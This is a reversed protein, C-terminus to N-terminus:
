PLHENKLSSSDFWKFHLRSSNFCDCKKGQLPKVLSKSNKASKTGGCHWTAAM